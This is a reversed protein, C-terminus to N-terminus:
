AYGITWWSTTAFQLYRYRGAVSSVRFDGFVNFQIGTVVAGGYPEYMSGSPGIPDGAYVLRANNVYPGFNPAPFDRATWFQWYNGGHSWGGMYYNGNNLLGFNCAFAGHVHFTMAAWGGNAVSGGVEITGASGGTTINASEPTTLQGSLSGGTVPFYSAPNFNAQHWIGNGGVNYNNGGGWQIYGPGGATGLRVYSLGAVLEGTVTLPGNITDGSKAVKEADLENIAGQVTLAQVNGTPAYSTGLATTSVQQWSANQRAYMAGTLPAEPVRTTDTPHKHDGRSYTYAIGANAVGDILPLNTEPSAGSGAPGSVTTWKEGDWTYIPVGVVAPQPYKQGLTPTSPFNLM